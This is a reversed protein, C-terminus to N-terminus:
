CRESEVLVVEVEPFCKKIVDAVRAVGAIKVESFTYWLVM